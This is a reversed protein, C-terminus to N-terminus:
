RTLDLELFKTGAIPNFRYPEIARFGLSEYLAIATAMMPLTDLRMRDYGIDRAAEIIALALTKGVDRGRFAPRVYLRKMECVGAGLPRLAVCGAIDAHDRALLIRGAPPAYAGPLTALEDGFNQFELDVGLQAAYETFLARVHGLDAASEVPVVLM